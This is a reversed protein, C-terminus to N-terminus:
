SVVKKKKPALLKTFLPITILFFRGFEPTVFTLLLSALFVVPVVLSKRIASKRVELDPLLEAVENKPNYIYKILLFQM